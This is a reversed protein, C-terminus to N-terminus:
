CCLSLVALFVFLCCCCLVLIKAAWEHSIPISVKLFFELRWASLLECSGEDGCM